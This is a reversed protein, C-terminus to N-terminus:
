IRLDLLAAVAIRFRGVAVGAELVAQRQAAIAAIGNRIVVQTGEGATFIFELIYPYVPISRVHSGISRHEAIEARGIRSRSGIVCRQQCDIAGAASEIGPHATDRGFQGYGVIGGCEVVIYVYVQFGNLNHIDRRAAQETGVISRRRCRFEYVIALFQEIGGAVIYLVPREHGLSIRDILVVPSVSLSRLRQKEKFVKLAATGLVVVMRVIWGPVLVLFCVAGVDLYLAVIDVTGRVIGGLPRDNIAKHESLIDSGIEIGLAVVM